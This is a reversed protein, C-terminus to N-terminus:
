DASAPAAAHYPALDLVELSREGVLFAYRGEIEISGSAEVQIADSKWSGHLGAVQLGRAGLLFLREGDSGVDSLEGVESPPLIAGITPRTDISEVIM